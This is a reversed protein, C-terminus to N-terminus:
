STTFATGLSRPARLQAGRRAGDREVQRLEVRNRFVVRPPPSPEGLPGVDGPRTREVAPMVLRVQRGIKTEAVEASRLNAKRLGLERGGVADGREAIVVIPKGPLPKELSREVLHQRRTLRSKWETQTPRVLAPSAPPEALLALNEHALLVRWLVVLTVASKERSRKGIWAIQTVVATWQEQNPPWLLQGFRARRDLSDSGRDLFFTHRAREEEADIGV